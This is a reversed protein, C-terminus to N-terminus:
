VTLLRLPEVDKWGIGRAAVPKTRRTLRRKVAETVDADAPAITAPSPGNLRILPIVSVSAVPCGIKWGIEPYLRYRTLLYRGEATSAVL